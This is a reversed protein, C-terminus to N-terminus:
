KQPKVSVYIKKVCYSKSFDKNKSIIINDDFEYVIYHLENKYYIPQGKNVNNSNTKDSQTEIIIKKISKSM